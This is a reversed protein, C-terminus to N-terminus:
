LAVTKGRFPPPLNPVAIRTRVVRCWKAELFPYVLAGGTLTGLAAVSTKRLFNRRDMAEELFAMARARMTRPPTLLHARRM